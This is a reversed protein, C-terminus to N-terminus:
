RTKKVCRFQYTEYGPYAQRFDAEVNIQAEYCDRWLPYSHITSAVDVDFLYLILLWM